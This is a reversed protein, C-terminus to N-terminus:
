MSMWYPFERKGTSYTVTIDVFVETKPNAKKVAKLLSLRIFYETDAEGDVIVLSSGKAVVTGSCDECNDDAKEWGDKTVTIKVKLKPKGHVQVYLKGSLSATKFKFVPTVTKSVRINLKRRSNDLSFIHATVDCEALGVDKFAVRFPSTDFGLDIAAQLLGCSVDYFTATSHWYMRNAHLFVATADRITMGQDHVLVYWARRYVGSSYHPDMGKFMDKVNSISHHDKEPTKFDRLFPKSKMVNGGSTFDSQSLYDEVAEGIIDAFAEDVGGSEEEYQLGSGQETVGHGIEHGVVDLVVLPYMDHFGDGFTCSVGDWFAESLNRGYHVRLEIKNNLPKSDFWENFMKAVLTGYFFADVSPSYAGNIRDGYGEKCQFKATQINTDDVTEGMDIVRVHENELYCVGDKVTPSLCYPELGYDIRGVKANGGVARYQKQIPCGNTTLGQWHKLITGDQLDIIYFPRKVGGVTYTYSVINVLRARYGGELYIEKQFKANEVKTVDDNEADAAIILTDWESLKAETNPLDQEIDQYLTGTADGTLEGTEDMRVTVVADYVPIGNYIEQLKEVKMGLADPAERVNELSEGAFLLALKKKNNNIYKIKYM